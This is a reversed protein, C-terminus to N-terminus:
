LCLVRAIRNQGNAHQQREDTVFHLESSADAGEDVLADFELHEVQMAVSQGVNHQRGGFLVCWLAVQRDVIQGM